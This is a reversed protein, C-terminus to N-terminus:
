DRGVLAVILGTIAVLLGTAAVLLYRAERLYRWNRMDHERDGPRHGRQVFSM